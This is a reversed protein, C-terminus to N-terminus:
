SGPAGPESLKKEALSKLVRSIVWRSVNMRRAIQDQSMGQERLSAIRTENVEMPKTGSNPRAGGHGNAM